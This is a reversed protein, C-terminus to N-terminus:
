LKAFFGKKNNWFLRLVDVLMLELESMECQSQKMGQVGM